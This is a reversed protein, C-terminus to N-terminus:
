KIRNTMSQNEVCEYIPSIENYKTNKMIQSNSKFVNIGTELTKSLSSSMKINELFTRFDLALSINFFFDFLLSVPKRLGSWRWKWKRRTEQKFHYFCLIHLNQYKSFKKYNLSLILNNLKQCPHSNRWSLTIIQLM